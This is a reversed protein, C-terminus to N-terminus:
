WNEMRLLTARGVAAVTCRLGRTRSPRIAGERRLSVAGTESFRRPRNVGAAAVKILLEDAGPAPVPRESQILVQPGGPESIEICQMTQPVDM